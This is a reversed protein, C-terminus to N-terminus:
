PFLCFGLWLLCKSWIQQCFFHLSKCPKQSPRESRTSLTSACCLGSALAIPQTLIVWFISKMGAQLCLELRPWWGRSHQGHCPHLLSFLSKAQRQALCCVHQPISGSRCVTSPSKQFRGQWWEKGSYLCYRSGTPSEFFLLFALSSHILIRSRRIERFM